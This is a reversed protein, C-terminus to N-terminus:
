SLAEPVFMFEGAKTVFVRAKGITVWRGIVRLKKDNEDKYTLTYFASKDRKKTRRKTFEIDSMVGKKVKSKFDDGTSADGVPEFAAGETMDSVIEQLDEVLSKM